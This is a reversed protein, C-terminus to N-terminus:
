PRLRDWKVFALRETTGFLDSGIINDALKLIWGNPKSRPYNLFLWDVSVHEEQQHLVFHAVMATATSRSRGATCNVLLNGGRRKWHNLYDLVHIMQEGTMLKGSKTGMLKPTIDGVQLTLRNFDPVDVPFNDDYCIHGSFDSAREYKYAIRKRGSIIINNPMTM